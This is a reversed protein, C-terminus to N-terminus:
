RMVAQLLAALRKGALILQQDVNPRRSDLYAPELKHETGYINFTAIKGCSEQAWQIPAQASWLVAGTGVSVSQSKLVRLYEVDSRKVSDIIWSDWVGHLNGGVGNLNVQFDNGGRDAFYSNHLPQMMDGVLHVIWRLAESRQNISLSKNALQSAFDQLKAVSCNRNKCDKEADYTCAAGSAFNVYHWPSTVKFAPDTERKEDAWSAVDALATAGSVALLPALAKKTAAPLQEQALSAVLRHGQAGFAHLQASSFVLVVVCLFKHM